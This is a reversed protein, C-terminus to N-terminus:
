AHGAAREAGAYTIQTEAVAARYAPVDPLDALIEIGISAQGAFRPDEVANTTLRQLCAATETGAYPSFGRPM